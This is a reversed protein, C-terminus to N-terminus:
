LEISDLNKFDMRLDFPDKYAVISLNILNSSQRKYLSKLLNHRLDLVILEKSNSFSDEITEINCDSM